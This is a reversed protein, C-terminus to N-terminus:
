FRFYALTREDKILLGGEAPIPHAWIPSDAVTYRKLVEFANPNARMVVLEGETTAAIVVEGAAVLAANNGERGKTTWLTKGTRADAAFFQGRNRHTLGFLTGGVAVPTSMYNPLSDNRWAETTSWKTGQQSVRVATLPQDLGSYILLDGVVLPTVINQDFSTTFPIQWLLRGDKLAVSVLHRQSQTIVQAVGGFTAVIPSSYAPGDGKWAWRVTGNGADLAMLAGNGPGGAFVIVHGQAVLPSTATGYEPSTAPFDKRFDKRWLLQGDRAQWASMIGSIGFTFVRGGDFAPTSKPGQGHRAAAPNVEYPADYATQWLQRGTTLDYATLAEQEDLRSFLYVRREAVIPSSHGIGAPVSWVKTARDPWRAPAKFAPATGARSPGRWATWEQAFSVAPGAGCIALALVLPRAKGRM